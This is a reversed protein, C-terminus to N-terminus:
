QEEEIKDDPFGDEIEARHYIAEESEGTEYRITGCKCKTAIVRETEHLVWVLKLPTKCDDCTPPSTPKLNDNLM